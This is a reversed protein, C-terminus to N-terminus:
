MLSCKDKDKIGMKKNYAELERFYSVPPWQNTEVHKLNAASLQAFEARQKMLQYNTSLFHLCFAELQKANCQQAVALMGIIDVDAKIIDDKTRREIMKTAFLECLTVLHQTKWRSALELIRLVTSDELRCHGTYLHEMLAMLTEHTTGAVSVHNEKAEGVLRSVVPSRCTVLTKHCLLPARSDAAAFHIDSWLPRDLFLEKAKAGSQDNLYTGLSPNLDPDRDLVNQGITVMEECAFVRAIEMTERVKDSQNKLTVMGTYLFELVRQFMEFNVESSLTIVTKHRETHVSAIGACPSLLPKQV